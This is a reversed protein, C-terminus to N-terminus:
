KKKYTLFMVNHKNYPTTDILEYDSYNEEIFKTLNRHKIHQSKNPSNHNTSYISVIDSVKFLNGMYSEFLEDEVLHYVVDLSLSLDYKNKLLKSLDYDFIKSSDEKFTESCKNIVTKSIDNGYYKDYGNLLRLQNGDGCGFEILTKINYKTILNNVYKAKFKIDDSDHSGLGSNGGNKYRNEWYNAVFGKKMKKYGNFWM